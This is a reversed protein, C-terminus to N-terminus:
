TANYDLVKVKTGREPVRFEMPLNRATYNFELPANDPFNTSFHKHDMNYYYYAELLDFSPSVFSVNTLSAAFRTNNFGDCSSGIECPFSNMSLIYVLHTKADLPVEVPHDKSALSRFSNTFTVFASTDNHDPLNPLPTTINTDYDGNYNIIGTAITKSFVAKPRSAYPKAAMYYQSPTQNAKLLVDITQGPSIVIYDSAFPKLYSGDSGVITLTHYSSWLVHHTANSFQNDLTSLNQRSRSKAQVYRCVCYYQIDIKFLAHIYTELIVMSQTLM